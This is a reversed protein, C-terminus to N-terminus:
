FNTEFNQSFGENEEGLNRVNSNLSSTNLNPTVTIVSYNSKKKQHNSTSAKRITNVLPIEENESDFAKISDNTISWRNTQDNDLTELDSSFPSKVREDFSTDKIEEYKSSSIVKEKALSNNSTTKTSGQEMSNKRSSFVSKALKSAQTKLKSSKTNNINEQSSFANTNNNYNSNFNMKEINFSTNPQTDNSSTSFFRVDRQPRFKNQQSSQNRFKASFDCDGISNLELKYQLIM